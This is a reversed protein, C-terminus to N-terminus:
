MLIIFTENMFVVIDVNPGVVPSYKLLPDVFTFNHYLVAIYMSKNGIHNHSLIPFTRVM